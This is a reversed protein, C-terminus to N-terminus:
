NVECQFLNMQLPQFSECIEGRKEDGNLSCLSRASFSLSTWRRLTSYRWLKCHWSCGSAGGGVLAGLHVSVPRSRVSPAVWVSCQEREGSHLWNSPFEDFSPTPTYSLFITTSNIVNSKVVIQKTLVSTWTKKQNNLRNQTRVCVYVCGNVNRM